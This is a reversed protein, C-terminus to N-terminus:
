TARKLVFRVIFQSMAVIVLGVLAYIATNRASAANQPNGQSTAFKLGSIMIMIVVIIGAIISLINFLRALLGSVGAGDKNCTTQAPDLASCVIDAAGNTVGAAAVKTPTFPAFFLFALGISLTLGIHKLTKKTM